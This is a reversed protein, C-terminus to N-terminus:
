MASRWVAIGLAVLGLLVVLSVWAQENLLARASRVSRDWWGRRRHLRVEDRLYDRHALLFKLGAKWDRALSERHPQELTVVKREDKELQALTVILYGPQGAEGMLPFDHLEVEIRELLRYMERVQGRNMPAAPDELYRGLQYWSRLLQRTQAVRQYLARRTSIGARAQPSNRAANVVEDIPPAPPPVPVPSPPPPPPVVEVPPIMEVVAPPVRVPPAEGPGAMGPTYLWVHAGTPLGHPPPPPPPPPPLPAPHSPGFLGEDYRRKQTTDTLCVFAQALRNMAETAPEPHRVQYRRVEDLRQHVRQEILAVDAEGPPLGLLRYHDPPWADAPLGFWNCLLERDM